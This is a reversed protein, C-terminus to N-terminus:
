NGSCLWLRTDGVMKQRGGSGEERDRGGRGGDGVRIQLHWLGIEEM